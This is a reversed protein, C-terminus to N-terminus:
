HGANERHAVNSRAGGLSDCWGCTFTRDRDAIDM